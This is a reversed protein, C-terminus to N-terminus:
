KEFKKLSILNKSFKSAGLGFCIASIMFSPIGIPPVRKMSIATKLPAPKIKLLRPSFTIEAWAIAMCTVVKVKMNGKDIPKAALTLTPFKTPDFENSLALYEENKAINKAKNKAIIFVKTRM